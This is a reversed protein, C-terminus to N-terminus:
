ASVQRARARGPIGLLNLIQHATGIAFAAVAGATSLAYATSMGAAILSLPVAAAVIIIV